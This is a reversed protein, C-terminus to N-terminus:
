ESEIGDLIEEIEDRVTDLEEDMSDLEEDISSDQDGGSLGLSAFMSNLKSLATDMADYKEYMKNEYTQMMKEFNTMKSKLNLILTGLYSGDIEATTGAYSKMETLINATADYLRNAVGVSNYKKAGTLSDDGPSCFLQYVCYSDDCLAATLKDEDLQIHGTTDSSTIGISMTTNYKGDVSTVPTYLAERMKAIMKRITQNGKLLGAKAKKNWKEIEEESMEAEEEKTLVDYDLCAEEKYLENLHDIMKNYDEVFLRVNEISREADMKVTVTIPTEAGGIGVLSYTVGSVSIKNASSNYTKGDVAVVADKGFAEATADSSAFRIVDSLTRVGDNTEVRCLNLRDLLEAGSACYNGAADYPRLGIYSDKGTSKNDLSFVDNAADYNAKINLGLKNIRSALDNLSLNGNVIEDKTFTVLKFPEGESAIEFSLGDDGVETVIDKLHVSRKEAGVRSIGDKSIFAANTALASVSVAHSTELADANASATVVGADASTVQMPAFTSSMKYKSLSVSQFKSIEAYVDAYAEKLWEQRVEKKYIRDYENQRTLMAAKVMQDIDMGSGSLGYIGNKGGTLRSGDGTAFLVTLPILVAAALSILVIKLIKKNGKKM